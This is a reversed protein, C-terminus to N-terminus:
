VHWNRLHGKLEIVLDASGLLTAPFDLSLSKATKLNIATEIKTVQPVPLDAAKEGKLIRGAYSGITHYADRYSTGYSVLGGAAATRWDRERSATENSCASSIIGVRRRLWKGCNEPPSV